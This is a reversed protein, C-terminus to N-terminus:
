NKGFIRRYQFNRVIHRGTAFSSVNCISQLKSNCYNRHLLFLSKLIYWWHLRILYKWLRINLASQHCLNSTANWWIYAKNVKWPNIYSLFSITLQTHNLLSLSCSLTFYTLHVYIHNDNIMWWLTHIYTTM